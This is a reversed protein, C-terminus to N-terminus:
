VKILNETAARFEYIKRTTFTDFVAVYNFEDAIAFFQDNKYLSFSIILGFDTKLDYIKKVPFPKLDNLDPLKELLDEEKM